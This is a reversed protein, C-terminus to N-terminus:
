LEPARLWYHGVMRQEDPNAIAGHELKEMAELAANAKAEMKTFFEAPWEIRSLDLALGVEAYEKYYALFRKWLELKSNTM